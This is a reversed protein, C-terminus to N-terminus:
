VARRRRLMLPVLGAAMLWLSAPEPVASVGARPGKEFGNDQFAVVLDTSNFRSDADWDGSSWVAMEDMEYLGKQFIEILDVTNFVGDLNADGIWTKRIEQVWFKLDGQGVSGDGDLDYKADAAGGERIKAMLDNVDEEDFQGNGNFDGPEGGASGMEYNLQYLRGGVGSSHIQLDSLIFEPELDGLEEDPIFDTTDVNFYHMGTGGQGFAIVGGNSDDVGEQWQVAAPHYLNGDDPIPSSGWAFEQDGTETPTHTPGIEWISFEGEGGEVSGDEQKVILPVVHYLEDEVEFERSDAAYYRVVEVTDGPPLQYGYLVPVGSWGDPTGDQLPLPAGVFGEKEEPPPPCAEGVKGGAELPPQTDGAVASINFQYQRLGFADADTGSAGELIAENLEIAPAGAGPAATGTLWGEVGAGVFPIPSRADTREGAPDSSLFGAVWGEQVTFTETDHFPFRFEGSCTFDVGAERTTGIARVVFDDGTEPFEVLPEAVFPTYLGQGTLTRGEAAWFNTYTLVGHDQGAPFDFPTDENIYLINTWGDPGGDGTVPDTGAVVSQAQCVGACVLTGVMVLGVLPWGMLRDTRLLSLM